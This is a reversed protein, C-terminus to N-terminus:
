PQKLSHCRLQRALCHSASIGPTPSNVTVATREGIPSGAGEPGTALKSGSEAQHRTVLSNSPPDAQEADGFASIRTESGKEDTTSTDNGILRFYGGFPRHLQGRPSGGVHDGDHQDVLRRAGAPAQQGAVPRVLRIEGVLRSLCARSCLLLCRFRQALCSFTQHGVPESRSGDLRSGSDPSFSLLAFSARIPPNWCHWRASHVAGFAPYLVAIQRRRVGFDTRAEGSTGYM